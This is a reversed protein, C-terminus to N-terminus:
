KETKQLAKLDNLVQQAHDKVKVKEYVKKIKGKKDIIFTTRAIGMYKRGYMSKEKWTNFAECLKGNADSALEIKLKHTDIFKQHRELTDKSVGVIKAKIKKFDNALLSFDIAEQTCGPTLDKPYFYLVLWSGLYDNLSSNKNALTEFILKKKM